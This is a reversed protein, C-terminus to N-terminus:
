AARSQETVASACCSRRDTMLGAEVCRRWETPSVPERPTTFEVVTTECRRVPRFISLPWRPNSVSQVDVTGPFCALHRFWCGSHHLAGDASESRWLLRRGPKLTALVQATLVRASRSLLNAPWPATDLVLVLDFTQPPLDATSRSDFRRYEASPCRLRGTLVAAPDDCLALVDLGFECLRETATLPRTGIVLATGGVPVPSKLLLQRWLRRPLDRDVAVADPPTSRQHHESM